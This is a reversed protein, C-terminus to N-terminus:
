FSLYRCFEFVFITVCSLFQFQSMALFFMALIAFRQGPFMVNNTLHILNSKGFSSLFYNKKCYHFFDPLRALFIM